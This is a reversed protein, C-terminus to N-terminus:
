VSHFYEPFRSTISRAISKMLACSLSEYLHKSTICRLDDYRLSVSNILKSFFIPLDRSFGGFSEFVAPLYLAGEEHVRAEFNKSKVEDAYDNCSYGLTQAADVVYKHQVPCTVAVDVFLNKGGSSNPITGAKRIFIKDENCIEYM